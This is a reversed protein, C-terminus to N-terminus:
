KTLQYKGRSVFNIYGKDRLIQLQQRLKDKIHKNKPHTSALAHEYAYVENLSFEKKGIKEIVRMTDLLWSKAKFDKEKNLFKVRQWNGLVTKKSIEVHNKVYYIKGSDPLNRLLLNCGVWGARKATIPLRKRKEIIGPIFFFKPIVLFNIIEFKLRDYTLFFFNPNNSGSLREIMTKYAGDVIKTGLSNKKSKLEFEEKCNTCYFDAVPKNNEFSDIRVLGCNPCFISRDVWDEALIRIQQSKSKFKKAITTNLALNM